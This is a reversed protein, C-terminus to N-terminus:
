VSYSCTNSWSTKCSLGQLVRKVWFLLWWTKHCASLKTIFSWKIAWQPLSFLLRIGTNCLTCTEILYWVSHCFLCSINCTPLCYNQHRNESLNRVEKSHVDKINEPQGPFYLRGRDTNSNTSCPGGKGPHIVESVSIYYWRRRAIYLHLLCEQTLGHNQKVRPSAFMIRPVTDQHRGQNM